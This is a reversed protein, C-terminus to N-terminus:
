DLIAGTHSQQVQKAYRRLIGTAPKHVPNWADFRQTIQKDSLQCSISRNAIDIHIIDGDEVIAILGGAAAEPSIHGIAPGRTAGSFRGDTIIATDSGLDMGMIAATAGLMERMGPGGRPGEYRIVVVDGKHILGNYIADIATEEDDFVKAPGSFQFMDPNVGSQKVVAGDPALNGRLIALGGESRYPNAIPRIVEHNHIKASVAIDRITAGSVTIADMEIKESLSKLMGPVGGARDLDLMFHPGLSSIQPIEKSILDFDDLGITIGLEHAIAPVHLTINSSGGVAMALRIGNRFAAPTLISAPTLNHQVMDMITKGTKRAIRSKDPSVALSTACGPLSMGIGEAIIAMTNATGLQSCSGAGPCTCREFEDLQELDIVGKKYQAVKEYPNTSFSGEPHFFGRPLSPGGTLMIAPINLRAAAMLMGPIIKDCSALMVMGDFGHALIMLEISDAIIERSVLPMRMGPHDMAIGDCIAITNFELPTGGAAWVANKVQESLTRLHIHGPVIENWSNVVAILPKNMDEKGLGVAQFFSRQPTREIGELVKRSPTTKM